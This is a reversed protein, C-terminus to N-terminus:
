RDIPSVFLTGDINFLDPYVYRSAPSIKIVSIKPNSVEGLKLLNEEYSFFYERGGHDIKIEGKFGRPERIFPTPIQFSSRKKATIQFSSMRRKELTSEHSLEIWSKKRWMSWRRERSEIIDKRRFYIIEIVSLRWSIRYCPTIIKWKHKYRIRNREKIQRPALTAGACFTTTLFQLTTDGASQKEESCRRRCDIAPTQKQFSRQTFRSRPLNKSKRTQRPRVPKESYRLRPQQRLSILNTTKKMVSQHRLNQEPQGKPITPPLVQRRYRALKERLRPKRRQQSSISNTTVRMSPRQCRLLPPLFLKDETTTTDWASFLHPRDWWLPFYRPPSLSTESHQSPSWSQNTTTNISKTTKRKHIQTKHSCCFSPNELSPASHPMHSHGLGLQMEKKRTQTKFGWARGHWSTGLQRSRLIPSQNMRSNQTSHTM